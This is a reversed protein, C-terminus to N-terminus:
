LETDPLVGPVGPGGSPHAGDPLPSRLLAALEDQIEALEEISDLDVNPAADAIAKVILEIRRLRLREELSPPAAEEQTDPADRGSWADVAVSLPVDLAAAVRDLEELAPSHGREWNYITNRTVKAKTAVEEVSRYGLAQMRGQRLARLLPRKTRKLNMDWLTNVGTAPPHVFM